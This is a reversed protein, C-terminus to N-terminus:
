HGIMRRKLPVIIPAKMISLEKSIDGKTKVSVGEDTRVLAYLLEGFTDLLLEENM